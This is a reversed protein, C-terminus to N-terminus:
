CNNDTDLWNSEDPLAEILKKNEEKLQRNERELQLIYDAVPKEIKTLLKLESNHLFDAFDDFSYVTKTNPLAGIHFYWVKDNM